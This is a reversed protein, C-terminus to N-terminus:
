SIKPGSRPSDQGSDKEFSRDHTSAVDNDHELEAKLYDSEYVACFCFGEIMIMLYIKIELMVTM